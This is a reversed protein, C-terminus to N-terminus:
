KGATTGMATAVARPYIVRASSDELQCNHWLLVFSGGVAQCRRTLAEIREIAAAQTLGEYRQELLSADMVILPREIVRTMSRSLPEFLPFPRCTGCRFGAYAAHSLTSDEDVGAQAWVSRTKLPDYRLVHQRARIRDLQISEGDCVRRLMQIESALLDADFASRYSGHLGILHGRSHIRRLLSRIRPDDIRYDGDVGGAGSTCLFYFTSQVGVRESQDMLWDFTNFPDLDVEGRRIKRRLRPARLAAGSDRRRLADRAMGRLLKASSQFLHKFPRDVDHTPVFTFRHTRLRLQPWIGLLRRGFLDILEDVCPTDNIDGSAAAPFREHGDRESSLIEELRTLYWFATGFVDFEFQSSDNGARPPAGVSVLLPRAATAPWGREGAAFVVDPIRLTSAPNDTAHIEVDGRSEFALQYEVGLHLGLVVQAAYTREQRLSDPFRVVFTM